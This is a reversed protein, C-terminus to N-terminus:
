IKAALAVRFIAGSPKASLIEVFGNHAEAFKKVLALGLGTGTTERRSEEGIRYFEDFIKKRQLHPVGPGHDEVEILVYQSNCRTKITIIKEEAGKAYKIANDLLNIVIQMVADSDFKVQDIKAFDKELIFGEQQAYPAMMDVVDSVCDNIDGLKFVYKKRGRQIRSFDLVNEILRTLRETEQRMSSYYESRKEDSKVWDKELMETYMRITTLPTRFEHSVASIFDDKKNSLKVQARVNRWLSVIALLAAIFVISVIAFYWNQLRAVEAGIWAPDLEILNLVMQGFDFVLIAVHEARDIEETGIEFGMGPRMLQKASETVQKLLEAQNLRFGQLFRRQEIQVNRLLFVQGGFIKNEKRGGPVVLSYFPEKFIKVMETEEGQETQPQQLIQNGIQEQRQPKLETQMQQSTSSLGSQVERQVSDSDDYRVSEAEQGARGAQTQTRRSDGRGGTMGPMMQSAPLRRQSTQGQQRDVDSQNVNAYNAFINDDVNRRNLVSIQAKQGEQFTSIKYKGGRDRGSGKGKSKLFTKQLQQTLEKATDEKKTPLKEKRSFSFDKNYKDEMEVPSPTTSTREVSMYSFGPGNGNLASLLNQELNAIYTRIEPNGTERQSAQYFPTSIGGDPEIQFHGYALGHELSGALPSPVIAQQENFSQPIYYYQYETYEREQEASILDDLKGKVDLRIQEAVETFEAFRKGELGEKHLSISHFGLLCFGCLAGFIIVSIIVLRKYM